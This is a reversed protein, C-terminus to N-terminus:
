GELDEVRKELKNIKRELIELERELRIIAKRTVVDEPKSAIKTM